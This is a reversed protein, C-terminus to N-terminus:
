WDDLQAHSAVAFPWSSSSLSVFESVSLAFGCTKSGSGEQNQSKIESQKRYKHKKNITTSRRNTKFRYFGCERLFFVFFDVVVVGGVNM